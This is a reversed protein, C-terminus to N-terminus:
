LADRVQQEDQGGHQDDDSDDFLQGLLTEACLRGVSGHGVTSPQTEVATM